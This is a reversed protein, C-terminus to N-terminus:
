YAIRCAPGIVDRYVYAAHQDVKPFCVLHEHGHVLMHMGVALLCQISDTHLSHCGNMEHLMLVQVSLVVLNHESIVAIRKRIRVRCGSLTFM